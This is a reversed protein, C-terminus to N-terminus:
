RLEQIILDAFVDKDLSKSKEELLRRSTQVEKDSFVFITRIIIIIYIIIITIFITIIICIKTKIM